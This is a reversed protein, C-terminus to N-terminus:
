EWSTAEPHFREWANSFSAIASTAELRKGELEGDTALGKLLDWTSGTEKDVFGNEIKEFTLTRGDVDRSWAVAAQDDQEFHVVLKLDALSDNVPADHQQLRDFRWSRSKGKHVLGLCFRKSQSLYHKDFELATPKLMTATTSPHLEAWASWTTISAPLITLREGKLKGEMCQGLIHSWSGGTEQDGMVLSHGWLKGSVFFTLQQEGVQSAYM